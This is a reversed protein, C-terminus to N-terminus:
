LVLAPRSSGEARADDLSPVASPIGAPRRPRWLFRRTPCGRGARVSWLRGRGAGAIWCGRRNLWCWIGIATADAGGGSIVGSHEDTGAVGLGGDEGGGDDEAGRGGGRRWAREVDKMLGAGVATM